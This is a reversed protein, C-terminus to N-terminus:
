NFGLILIFINESKYLRSISQSYISSGLHSAELKVERLIENYLSVLGLEITTPCVKQYITMKYIYLIITHEKYSRVSLKQNNCLLEFVTVLLQDALCDGPDLWRLTPPTQWIVLSLGITSHHNVEHRLLSLRNTSPSERWFCITNRYM